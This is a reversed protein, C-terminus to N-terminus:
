HILDTLLFHVHLYLLGETLKEEDVLGEGVSSNDQASEFEDEEEKIIEKKITKKKKNSIDGNFNSDTTTESDEPTKRKKAM